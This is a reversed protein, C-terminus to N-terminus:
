LTMQKPQAAWYRIRRAAIECYEVDQEIGIFRFGELVAACGTSGSGMFPDLIVGGPPCILRTLWRMLTVPKVTPHFNSKYKNTGDRKFSGPNQDGSSWRLM